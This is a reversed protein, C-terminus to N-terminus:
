IVLFFSKREAWREEWAHIPKWGFIYLLINSNPDFDNFGNKTIESKFISTNTLSCFKCFRPVCMSAFYYAAFSSRTEIRTIIAFTWCIRLFQDIRLACIEMDYWMVDCWMVDHIYKLKSTHTHTRASIQAHTRISGNQHISAFTSAREIVAARTLSRM